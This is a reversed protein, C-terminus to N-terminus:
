RADVAGKMRKLRSTNHKTRIGLGHEQRLAMLANYFDNIKEWVERPMAYGDLSPTNEYSAMKRREGTALEYLTKLETDRLGRETTHLLPRLIRYFENLCDIMTEILRPNGRLELFVNSTTRLVEDLRPYDFGWMDYVSKKGVEGGADEIDFEDPAEPEDSMAAYSGPEPRPNRNLARM